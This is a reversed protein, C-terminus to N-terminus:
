LHNLFDYLSRSSECGLKRKLRSKATHISNFTRNTMSAIEKSSLNLHLLACLRKENPTLHPFRQELKEFFETDVKKFYLEFENWDKNYQFEKLLHEIEKIYLREKAKLAPFRDMAKLKEHMADASQQIKTYHLAMSTLEKDKETLAKDKEALKKAIEDRLLKQRIQNETASEEMHKRMLRNKKKSIRLKHWLLFTLLCLLLGILVFVSALLNRNRLKSNALELAQRAQIREQEIKYNDFKRQLRGMRLEQEKGAVEESLAYATDLYAMGTEFDGKIRYLTALFRLSAKELGLNGLDRTEVLNELALKEAQRYKGDMFYSMVMNIRIYIALHGYHKGTAEQLAKGFYEEALGYQQLARYAQGIYYISYIYQEDHIGSEPFMSYRELAYKLAMQPDGYIAHWTSLNAYLKALQEKDNSKRLIDLARLCYQKALEAKGQHIMIAGMAKFCRGSVYDNSDRSYTIRINAIIDTAETHENMHSEADALAFGTELHLRNWLSDRAHELLSPVASPKISLHAKDTSLLSPRDLYEAVAQELALVSDFFTAYNGQSFFLYAEELKFTYLALTDAERIGYLIAKQITAQKEKSDACHRITERYSSLSDAQKAHGPLFIGTLFSISLILGRFCPRFVCRFAAPKERKM